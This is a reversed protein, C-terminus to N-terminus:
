SGAKVGACTINVNHQIRTITKYSLKIRGKYERVNGIDTDGSIIFNKGQMIPMPSVSGTGAFDGLFIASAEEISRGTANQLVLTLEGNEYVAHDYYIIKTDDSTCNVGGPVGGFVFIIVGIVIALAIMAWAHTLLYELASQGKDGFRDRLNKSNM